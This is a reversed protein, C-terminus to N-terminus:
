FQLPAIFNYFTHIFRLFGQQHSLLVYSLNYIILIFDLNRLESGFLNYQNVKMDKFSCICTLVRNVLTISNSQLVQLYTFLFFLHSFM